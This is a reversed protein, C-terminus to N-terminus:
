SLIEDMLEDATTPRCRGETFERHAERAEANVRKRGRESARSRVIEVLAEQDEASLQDVAELVDAFSLSREM